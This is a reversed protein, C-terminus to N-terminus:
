SRRGRTAPPAALKALLATLTAIESGDLCGRIWQGTAVVLEAMAAEVVAKGAETLSVPKVRMDEEQQRRQVLGREELHLMVKTLGGSTIVVEAQIQSPTLCHPSPANRLTALVDFEAATFGHKALLPRMTDISATRAWQLMLFLPVVEPDLASDWRHSEMRHHPTM